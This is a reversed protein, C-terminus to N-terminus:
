GMEEIKADQIKDPQGIFSMNSTDKYQQNMEKEVGILEQIRVQPFDEELPPPSQWQNLSAQLIILNQVRWKENMDKDTQIRHQYSDPAVGYTLWRDLEKQFKKSKKTEKVEFTPSIETIRTELKQMLPDKDELKHLHVNSRLVPDEELDEMFNNYLKGGPNVNNFHKLRWYRIEQAARLLPYVKKAIIVDPM